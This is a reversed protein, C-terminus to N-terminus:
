QRNLELVMRLQSLGTLVFGARAFFSPAMNEPFRTPLRWYRGPYMAFLARMLRLGWGQRRVALPVLIMSIVVQSGNDPTILAYAKDELRLAVAPPGSAAVTEASLQWPLDPYAEYEVVKALERPDIEKLNDSSTESIKSAQREYGVLVGKEEFGLHRYLGVAATNQEIVELIIRRFGRHGADKIVAAMLKRGLGLKRETAVVGMMAVRRSWGRTGILIFGSPRGDRVLVRSASLDISDSRIMQSLTDASMLIPSVAGEFSRTFLDALEELSFATSPLLKLDRSLSTSTSELAYLDSEQIDIL